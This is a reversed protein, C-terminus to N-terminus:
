YIEKKLTMGTLNVQFSMKIVKIFGGYVVKTEIDVYDLNM